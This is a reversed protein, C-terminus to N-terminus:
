QLQDPRGRERFIKKRKATKMEVARHKKRSDADAFDIRLLDKADLILWATPKIMIPTTKLNRV